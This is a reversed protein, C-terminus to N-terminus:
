FFNRTGRRLEYLAKDVGVMRENEDCNQKRCIKGSCILIAGFVSVTRSIALLDRVEQEKGNGTWELTDYDALWEIDKDDRISSFISLMLSGLNLTNSYSINM